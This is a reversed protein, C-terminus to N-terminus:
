KMHGAFADIRRIWGRLWKRQSPVRRVIAEVFAVRDAHLRCMFEYQNEKELALLTKPGVIGDCKVGLLRQPRRIGHAGSAWVWDVLMEAVPQSAIRDAQWRDWYLTKLIDLWEAYSIDRLERAGPKPLGKGACYSRYTALTVGSMTAGGRDHPDDSWGSRRASEFLAANRAADPSFAGFPTGAEFHLIKGVILQIEAM